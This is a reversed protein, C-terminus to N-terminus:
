LSAQKAAFVTRERPVLELLQALHPEGLPPEGLPLLSRSLDLTQRIYTKVSIFATNYM